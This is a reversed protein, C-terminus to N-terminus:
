DDKNFNIKLSLTHNLIMGMYLRLYEDLDEASNNKILLEHLEKLRREQLTPKKEQVKEQEKKM